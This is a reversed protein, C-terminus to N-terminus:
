TAVFIEQYPSIRQKKVKRPQYLKAYDYEWNFEALENHRAEGTPSYDLSIIAKKSWKKMKEFTPGIDEPNVHMLFECSLVIDWTEDTDFDKIDSHITAVNPYSEVILDLQHISIDLATYRKVKFNELVTSTIRGFGAGLELVSDFKFLKLADIIKETQIERYATHEWRAKMTRGAEEWYSKYDFM